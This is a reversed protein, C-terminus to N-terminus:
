PFISQFFSNCFLSVAVGKCKTKIFAVSPPSWLSVVNSAFKALAGVLVLSLLKKWTKM